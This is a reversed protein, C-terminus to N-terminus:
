SKRAMEVFNRNTQMLQNFTGQAILKGNELLLILDCSKVTSLRHAILITTINKYKLNHIAEMVVQETLNDLASTAEDLILVKPNHYLARAIGIRQRQGGSLRVGREGVSTEYQHPLQSIVFEHLNAIKSAQEVKRLNVEKPDVGFAINASVTDDTLYIQQPVYGIIKQWSKGKPQSISLGDVEITGKSPELIGLILDVMTTKGSGTTGVVGVTSNAPIILNLDTIVNEESKPYKYYVGNLKIDQKLELKDHDFKQPLPSLSTLDNNLADISPRANRLQTVAVYIAQIAPMLKYGSYAYLVIIPLVNQFDRSQIMLYLVLLIMGGFAIAELGFRPLQAIVQSKIQHRAFSLAPHTFRDVYFKELGSVKVEKFAGFAESIAKFRSQNAKFRESGSRILIKRSVLYISMYAVGFTFVVKIALVPDALTLLILIALAVAVNSFLALLPTFGGAMVQGVESLVSSGLTASNHNLFWSYSQHLYGEVLRKSLSYESMRQFRIQLFTAIAKFGLSVMLFFFVLVGSLFIFQEITTVGLKKSFKFIRKLTVHTEITEPDSLIGMFSMVSAAGLMELLGMIISLLLLSGLYKREKATLLELLKKFM